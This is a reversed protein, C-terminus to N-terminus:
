EVRFHKSVSSSDRRSLDGMNEMALYISVAQLISWVMLHLRPVGKILAEIILTNLCMQDSKKYKSSARLMMRRLLQQLQRKSSARSGRLALACILTKLLTSASSSDRSLLDDRTKWPWICVCSVFAGLFTAEFVMFLRKRHFFADQVNSCKEFRM